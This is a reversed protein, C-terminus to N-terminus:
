EILQMGSLEKLYRKSCTEVLLGNAYIGYNFYYNNNELALHYVTYDGATEYVSAKNDLCVPLRYKEDTVYIDGLVKLTEEKQEENVFKDVLVSHCGTIILDEFIEPYQDQTCKYLQDKIRNSSALHTIDKYGIMDIPVFGNILTKVLDGKRLEQICKYGNNTLIKTNKNFCTVPELGTYIYGGFGAAALKTGDASSAISFWQNTGASTQQTWSAGSDTSTYIYGNSIGAALKTGDASSAISLWQNTGASTQQIWTNGSDTSTYIYGGFAAVAALKTGDASSAISNWNRSGASTQQTWSAGSNISTYIYEGNVVAALKTGDASSAISFWYRSGASTQQTWTFSM